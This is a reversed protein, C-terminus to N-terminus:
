SARAAPLVACSCLPMPAGLLAAKMVSGFGREGLHKVLWDRCIFLHILGAALIGFIVYFGADYLIGWAADAARVLIESM